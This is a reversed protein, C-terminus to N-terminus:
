FDVEIDLFCFLLPVILFYSLQGPKQPLVINTTSSSVGPGGNQISVTVPHRRPDSDLSIPVVSQM